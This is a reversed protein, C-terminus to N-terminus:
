TGPSQNELIMQAVCWVCLARNWLVANHPGHRRTGWVRRCDDVTGCEDCTDVASKQQFHIQEATETETM